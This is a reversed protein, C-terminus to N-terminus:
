PIKALSECMTSIFKLKELKCIMGDQNSTILSITTYLLYSNTHTQPLLYGMVQRAVLLYKGPLSYFKIIQLTNVEHSLILVIYFINKWCLCM